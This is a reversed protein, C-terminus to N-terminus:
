GIPVVHGGTDFTFDSKITIGRPADQQGPPTGTTTIASPQGATQRVLQDLEGGERTFREAKVALAELGNTERLIRPLDALHKELGQVNLDMETLHDIQDIAAGYRPVISDLLGSAGERGYADQLVRDLEPLSVGVSAAQQQKVRAVGFREALKPLGKQVTKLDAVLTARPGAARAQAQAVPSAQAQQQRIDHVTQEFNM